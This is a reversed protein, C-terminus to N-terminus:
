VRKRERKQFLSRVRKQCCNIQFSSYSFFNELLLAFTELLSCLGVMLMNPLFGYKLKLTECGHVCDIYVRLCCVTLSYVRNYFGLCYNVCISISLYKTLLCLALTLLSTLTLLGITHFNCRM